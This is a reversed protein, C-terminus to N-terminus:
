NTKNDAVRFQMIDRLALRIGELRAVSISSWLDSNLIKIQNITEFKEKVRDLDVPLQDVLIVIIAKFDKFKESQKLLEIQSLTVVMDFEYASTHDQLEIGQMLPAVDHRLTKSTQISFQNLSELDKLKQIDEWKEKSSISEETLSALDKAILGIALNFGKTNNIQFAAEALSLRTEFVQRRLSKDEGSQAEKSNQKLSM